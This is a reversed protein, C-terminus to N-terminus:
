LLQIQHQTRKGTGGKGMKTSGEESKFVFGGCSQHSFFFFTPTELTEWQAVEEPLQRQQNDVELSFLTTM